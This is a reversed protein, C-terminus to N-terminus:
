TYCHPLSFLVTSYIHFFLLLLWFLVYLAILPQLKVIFREEVNARKAKPDQKTCLKERVTPVCHVYVMIKCFHLFIFVENNDRLSLTADTWGAGDSSHRRPAWGAGRQGCTRLRSRDLHSRGGSSDERIGGILIWWGLGGAAEAETTDEAGWGAGWRPADFDEGSGPSTLWATISFQSNYRWSTSQSYSHKSLKIFTFHWRTYPQVISRFKISIDIHNLAIKM